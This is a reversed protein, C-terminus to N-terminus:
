PRLHCKKKKNRSVIRRRTREFYQITLPGSRLIGHEIRLRTFLVIHNFFTIRRTSLPVVRDAYVTRESIEITATVRVPHRRLRLSPILSFFIFRYYNRRQNRERDSIFKNAPDIVYRHPTSSVWEFAHLRFDFKSRDYDFLLFDSRILRFVFLVSFRSFVVFSSRHPRLITM